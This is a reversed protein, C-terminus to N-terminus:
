KRRLEIPNGQTPLEHFEILDLEVMISAIASAYKPSPPFYHQNEIMYKGLGKWPKTINGGLLYWKKDVFFNELINCLFCYPFKFPTKGWIVNFYGDKLKVNILEGDETLPLCTFEMM